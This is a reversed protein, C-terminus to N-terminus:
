PQASGGFGLSRSRRRWRGAWRPGGLGLRTERVGEREGGTKRPREAAWWRTGKYAEADAMERFEEENVANDGAGPSLFSLLSIAAADKVAALNRAGTAALDPPSLAGGSGAPAEDEGKALASRRPPACWGRRRVARATEESTSAPFLAACAAGACGTLFDEEIKSYRAEPFFSVM